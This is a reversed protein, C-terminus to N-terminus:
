PLYGRGPRHRVRRRRNAFVYRTLMKLGRWFSAMAWRGVRPARTRRLLSIPGSLFSLALSLTILLLIIAFGLHILDDM